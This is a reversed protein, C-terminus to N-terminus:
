KCLFRVLWVKCEHKVLVTLLFLEFLKSKLNHHIPQSPQLLYVLSIDSRMCVAFVQSSSACVMSPDAKTPNGVIITM